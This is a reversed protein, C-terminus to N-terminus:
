RCRIPGPGGGRTLQYRRDQGQGQVRLTLRDGQVTGTVRVDSAHGSAAPTDARDPGPSHVTRRAGFAFRGARPLGRPLVGEITECDLQLHVAAGWVRLVAGAGGWADPGASRPHLQM